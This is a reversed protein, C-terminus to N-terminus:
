IELIEQAKEIDKSIQKHLESIGSFKKEDRLRYIFEVSIEENYIDKNFELIHVEVTFKQDGFTPSYGINAVGKYKKREYEVIVAYVGSKPCLEDCLNINATPFGLLKGGRNRGVVVKGKLQYFRGLLKKADNVRGEIVLERVKTSSIRGSWGNSIEIWDVVIVDYGLNKTHTKLFELNGERNKGFAYDHGVVIAKTGIRNILIDQIFEKATISAFEKSFSICIVVDIGCKEILEIKQDYRTILPPFGNKKIIRLPHPDFTMAISTGKIDKAKETVKKFLAQHGIHVGDFNGITIVANKFPEIISELDRILKM